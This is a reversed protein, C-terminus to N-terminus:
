NKTHYMFGKFKIQKGTFEGPYRYITEMANLFEEDELNITKRKFVKKFDKHIM